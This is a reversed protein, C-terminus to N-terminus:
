MWESVWESLCGGIVYQWANSALRYACFYALGNRGIGICSIYAVSNQKSQNVTEKVLGLCYQEDNLKAPFDIAIM